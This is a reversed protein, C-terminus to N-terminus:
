HSTALPENGIGLEGNGLFHIKRCHGECLQTVQAVETSLSSPLFTLDWSSFHYKCYYNLSYPSVLQPVSDSLSNLSSSKVKDEILIKRLEM